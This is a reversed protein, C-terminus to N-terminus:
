PGERSAGLAQRVLADTSIPRFRPAELRRRVSEVSVCILVKGGARLCSSLQFSFRPDLVVRGCARLM